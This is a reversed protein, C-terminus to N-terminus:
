NYLLDNSTLNERMAHRVVDIGKLPRLFVKFEIILNSRTTIIDIGNVLINNFSAEFEACTYNNNAIIKTYKFDKNQFIKVAASLYKLVKQKGEQPKFVVPSYFIANEDIIKELMDLKGTFIIKKWKEICNFNKHEINKHNTM